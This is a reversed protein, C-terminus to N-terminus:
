NKTIFYTNIQSLYHPGNDCKHPLANMFNQNILYECQQFEEQELDLHLLLKKNFKNREAGEPARGRV